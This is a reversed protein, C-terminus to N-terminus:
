AARTRARGGQLRGAGNNADRSTADRGCRLKGEGAKAALTQSALAADKGRPASRPAGM